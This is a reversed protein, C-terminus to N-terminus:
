GLREPVETLSGELQATPKAPDLWHDADVIVAKDALRPLARLNPRDQHVQDAVRDVVSELTGVLSSRGALCKRRRELEPYATIPAVYEDLDGVIAFADVPRFDL